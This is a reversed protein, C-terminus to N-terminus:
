LLVLIAITIRTPQLVLPIFLNSALSDLFEYTQNHENYNSVNVNFDRLMFIFKQEKSINGLLKDLYNCNFDTLDM